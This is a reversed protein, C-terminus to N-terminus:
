AHLLVSFSVIGIRTLVEKPPRVCVCVCVCKWTQLFQGEARRLDHCKTHHVAPPHSHTQSPLPPAFPRTTTLPSLCGVCIGRMRPAAVVTHTHTHTQLVSIHLHPTLRTSPPSAKSDSHTESHAGLYPPIYTRVPATGPQPSEPSQNTDVRLPTYLSTPITSPHLPPRSDTNNRKRRRHIHTHTNIVTWHSSATAWTLRGIRCATGFRGRKDRRYYRSVTRVSSTLSFRSFTAPSHKNLSNSIIVAM